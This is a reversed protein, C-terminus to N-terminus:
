TLIRTYSVVQEAQKTWTDQPPKPLVRSRKPPFASIINSKVAEKLELTRDVKSM